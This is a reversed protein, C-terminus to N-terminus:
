IGSLVVMEIAFHLFSYFDKKPAYRVMPDEVLGISLDKFYIEFVKVM